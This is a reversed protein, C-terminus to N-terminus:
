VRLTFHLVNYNYLMKHCKIKVMCIMHIFNDHFQLAWRSTYVNPSLSAYVIDFMFIVFIMTLTFTKM